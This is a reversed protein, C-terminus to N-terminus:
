ESKTILNIVRYSAVSVPPLKALLLETQNISQNIVRLRYTAPLPIHALRGTGRSVPSKKKKALHHSSIVVQPPVQHTAGVGRAAAPVGHGTNPLFVVSLYYQLDYYCLVALLLFFCCFFFFFTAEAPEQLSYSASTDKPYKSVLIGVGQGRRRLAKFADEDTRDDGIYVPLVDACDALGLSELLFELAKGKDWKISPRVEFVMRGQTLKLRPYEKLVSKVTDALASWSQVYYYYYYYIAFAEFNNTSWSRHCPNHKHTSPFRSFPITWGKRRRM